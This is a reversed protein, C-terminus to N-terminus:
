STHWTVSFIKKFIRNISPSFFPPLFFSLSVDAHLQRKLVGYQSKAQLQPMYGSQSNFWHGKPEHLDTSLGSLGVLCPLHFYKIAGDSKVIVLFNLFFTDFM